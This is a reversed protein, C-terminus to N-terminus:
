KAQFIRVEWRPEEAYFKRGQAEVITCDDHYYGARTMADLIQKLYNDIDPRVGPRIKGSIADNKKLRPWSPPPPLFVDAEVRLYGDLEQKPRHQSLLWDLEVENSKQKDSKYTGHKSFRPRMQATPATLLEFELVKVM